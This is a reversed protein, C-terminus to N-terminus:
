DLQYQFEQWSGSGFRTPALTELYKANTNRIDAFRGETELPVERPDLNAFLSIAELAASPNECLDEYRLRLCDSSEDELAAEHAIHWHYVLEEISTNSWKRTACAVVRPDRTMIVFRSGPFVSRLWGIKTLNPPSKELLIRDEGQTWPAWCCLLRRQATQPDTAPQAMRMQPSFAFRGPGGFERAAPYVDQLHQGENEPVPAQLGAIRFHSRLLHELLTTGSRHLGCVFLMREVALPREAPTVLPLEPERSTEKVKKRFLQM